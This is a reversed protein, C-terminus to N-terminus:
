ILLAIIRIYVVYIYIYIYIYIYLIVHNGLNTACTTKNLSNFNHSSNLSKTLDTNDRIIHLLALISHHKPEYGLFSNVSHNTLSLSLSIFKSVISYHTQITLTKIKHNLYFLYFLNSNQIM